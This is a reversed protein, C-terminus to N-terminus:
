DPQKGSRIRQVLENGQPGLGYLQKQLQSGAKRFPKGSQDRRLEGIQIKELGM